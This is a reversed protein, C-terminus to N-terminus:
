WFIRGLGGLVTGVIGLSLLVIGVLLLPLLIVIGLPILVVGVVILAILAGLAGAVKTKKVKREEKIIKKKVIKLAIKTKWSLEQTLEKESLTPQHASPLAINAQTIQAFTDDQAAFSQGCVGCFILMIFFYTKM